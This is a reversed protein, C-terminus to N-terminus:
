AAQGLDVEMNERNLLGSFNQQVAMVAKDPYEAVMRNILETLILAGTKPLELKDLLHAVGKISFGIFNSGSGVHNAEYLTIFKNMRHETISHDAIQVRICDMHKDFCAFPRFEGEVLHHSMFEGLTEYGEEEIHQHEM